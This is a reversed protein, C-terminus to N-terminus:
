LQLHKLNKINNHRFYQTPTTTKNFYNAVLICLYAIM